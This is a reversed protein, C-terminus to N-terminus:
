AVFGCNRGGIPAPRGLDNFEARQRMINMYPVNRGRALKWAGSLRTECPSNPAAQGQGTGPAAPAPLLGAAPYPTAGDRRSQRRMVALGRGRGDRAHGAGGRIPGTLRLPPGGFRLRRAPARFADEASGGEPDTGAAAAGANRLAHVPAGREAKGGGPARRGPLPCCRGSGAEQIRGSEPRDCRSIKASTRRLSVSGSEEWRDLLSTPYPNAVSIRPRRRFSPSAGARVAFGTLGGGSRGLAIATSLGDERRGGPLPSTPHPTSGPAPRGPRPDERDRGDTFQRPAGADRRCPLGFARMRTRAERSAPPVAASGPAPGGERGGGQLPSSDPSAPPLLSSPPPGVGARRRHRRRPM